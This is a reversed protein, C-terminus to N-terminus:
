MLLKFGKQAIATRLNIQIYIFGKNSMFDFTGRVSRIHSMINYHKYTSKSTRIVPKQKTTHVCWLNLLLLDIPCVCLPGPLPLSGM